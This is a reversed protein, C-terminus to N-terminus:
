PLSQVWFELANESTFWYYIQKTKKQKTYLFTRKHRPTVLHGLTYECKSSKNCSNRLSFIQKMSRFQNNRCCTRPNRCAENLHFTERQPSCEGQQIGFGIAIWTQNRLLVPPAPIANWLVYVIICKGDSVLCLDGTCLNRKQCKLIWSFHM